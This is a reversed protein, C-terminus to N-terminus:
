ILTRMLPSTQAVKRFVSGKDPVLVVGKAERPAESSLKSGAFALSGARIPGTLLQM